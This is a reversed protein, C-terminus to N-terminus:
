SIRCVCVCSESGFCSSDHVKYVQGFGLVFIRFGWAM